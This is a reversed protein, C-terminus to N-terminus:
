HNLAIINIKNYPKYYFAIRLDQFLFYHRFGTYILGDPCRVPEDDDPDSEITPKSCPTSQTNYLKNEEDMIYFTFDDLKPTDGSVDRIHLSFVITSSQLGIDRPNELLLSIVINEDRYAGAYGLNKLINGRRRETQHTNNEM